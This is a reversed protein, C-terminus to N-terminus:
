GRDNQMYCGEVGCARVESILVPAQGIKTKVYGTSRQM